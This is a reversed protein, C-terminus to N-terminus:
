KSQKEYDLQNLRTRLVSNAEVLDPTIAYAGLEITRCEWTNIDRHYVFVKDRHFVVDGDKAEGPFEPELYDSM